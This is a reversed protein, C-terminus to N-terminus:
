NHCILQPMNTIVIVITPAGPVPGYGTGYPKLVCHWAMATCVMVMYAVVICTMVTYALVIYAMVIYAVTM